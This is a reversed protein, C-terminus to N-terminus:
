EFSRTNRSTGGFCCTLLVHFRGFPLAKTPRPKIRLNDAHLIEGLLLAIYPRCCMSILQLCERLDISTVDM